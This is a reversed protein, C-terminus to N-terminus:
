AHMGEASFLRPPLTDAAKVGSGHVQALLGLLFVLQLKCGCPLGRAWM